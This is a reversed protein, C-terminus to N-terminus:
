DLFIALKGKLNEDIIVAVDDLVRFVKDEEKPDFTYEGHFFDLFLDEGIAFSNCNVSVHEKVLKAFDKAWKIASDDICTIMKIKHNEIYEYLWVPLEETCINSNILAKVMGYAVGCVFPSEHQIHNKYFINDHNDKLFDQINDYGFNHMYAQEIHEFM